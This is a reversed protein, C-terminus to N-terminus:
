SLRLQASRAASTLLDGCTQSAIDFTFKQGFAAPGRYQFDQYVPVFPTFRRDPSRAFWSSRATLPFYSNDQMDRSTLDLLTTIDGAPRKFSQSSSAM